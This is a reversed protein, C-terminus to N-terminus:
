TSSSPLKANLERCPLVLGEELATEVDARCIRLVWYWTGKSAQEPRREVPFVLRRAALQNIGLVNRIRAPSTPGADVGDIRDNGTTM